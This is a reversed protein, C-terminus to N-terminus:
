FDQPTQLWALIKAMLIASPPRSGNELQSLYSVSIGLHTALTKQSWYRELRTQRIAAGDVPPVHTPSLRPRGRRPRSSPASMNQLVPAPLLPLTQPVTLQIKTELWQRNPITSYGVPWGVALVGANQLLDIGGDFRQRTRGIWNHDRKTPTPLEGIDELIHDIRRTIPSGVPLVEGLLFMRQGLKKAMVATGRQERHDFELLIRAMRGVWVRGHANLWWHAWQGARVLWSVEIRERDGFLSEQYCEVKVIDFLRDGQWSVGHPDWKDTTPHREPYKEVDFHLSRLHEMETFIREYLLRRELGWRRIGKYQLIADATIRVPELLPAQPKRGMSPECLQALVALAVDATLPTLQEVLDWLTEPPLHPATASPAGHPYVLIRGGKRGRHQYLPRGTESAQWGGQLYRAKPGGKWLAAMGAAILPNAPITGREDSFAPPVAPQKPLTAPPPERTIRDRVAEPFAWTCIVVFGHPAGEDAVVLAAFHPRNTEAPDLQLM